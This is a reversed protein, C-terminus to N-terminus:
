VARIRLSIQANAIQKYQLCMKAERPCLCYKATVPIYNIPVNLKKDNNKRKKKTKKKKNTKKKTGKKHFPAVVNRFCGQVFIYFYEGGFVSFFESLVSISKM